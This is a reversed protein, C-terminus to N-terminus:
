HQGDDMCHCLIANQAFWNYRSVRAISGLGGGIVTVDTDMLIMSRVRAVMTVHIAQTASLSSQLPIFKLNM